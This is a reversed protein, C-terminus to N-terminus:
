NEYFIVNLEEIKNFAKDATFLPLDLYIATAAIVGDPIKTRYKKRLYITAQKIQPNVDIIVWKSLMLTIIKEQQTNLDPYSLVELQTIFSIYIQKGNLSEAVAADGNLLYLVINADVFIKNGNM